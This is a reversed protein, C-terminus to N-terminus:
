LVYKSPVRCSVTCVRYIILFGISKRQDIHKHDVLIEGNRGSQLESASLIKSIKWKQCTRHDEDWLERRPVPIAKSVGARFRKLERNIALVKKNLAEVAAKAFAQM